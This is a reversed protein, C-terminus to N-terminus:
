ACKLCKNELEKVRELLHYIVEDSSGHNMNYKIMDAISMESIWKVRGGAATVVVPYTCNDKYKTVKIM